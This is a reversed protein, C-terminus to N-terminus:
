LESQNWSLLVEMNFLVKLLDHEGFNSAYNWTLKRTGTPDAWAFLRTQGPLLVLEEQSGSFCNVSPLDAHRPRSVGYLVNVQKTLLMCSLAWVLVSVHEMVLLESAQASLSHCHLVVELSANVPVPESAM